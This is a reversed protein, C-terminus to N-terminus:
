YKINNKLFTKRLLRDVEICNTIDREFDRIIDDMAVSMNNIQNAILRRGEVLRNKVNENVTYNNLVDETGKLLTNLKVCKKDLEKPIIVKGNECSSILEGFYSFTTHLERGWCKNNM